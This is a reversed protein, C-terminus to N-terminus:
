RGGQYWDKERKEARDCALDATHTRTRKRAFYSAWEQRSLRIARARALLVQCVMALGILVGFAVCQGSLGGTM